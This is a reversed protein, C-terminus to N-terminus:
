CGARLMTGDARIKSPDLIMTYTESDAMFHQTPKAHMEGAINPVKKSNEELWAAMKRGDTGGTGEAAAKIAMVADYMYIGNTYPLQPFNKPDELKVRALYKAYGTTGEADGACYTFAKVGLAASVHRIAPGALRAIPAYLFGIANTGGLPIEWGLDDLSKLVNAMDPATAGTVLVVDPSGRRLALLQPTMDTAGQEFQETGTPVAGRQATYSRFRDRAAASNPGNDHIFAIRKAKRVDIAWNIVAVAQEEPPLQMSFGTLANERDFKPPSGTTFFALSAERMIPEIALAQQSAAPGLIAHVKDSYALKKAMSVSQTTDFQDDAVVLEVKRGLIGGAANIDRVALRAGIDMSLGAAAALGTMPFIGGIKIPEQQASASNSGAHGALLSAGLLAATLLRRKM